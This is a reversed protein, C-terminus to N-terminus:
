QRLKEIAHEERRRVEERTMGLEQGVRDLTRPEARDLGCRLIVLRREDANLKALLPELDDLDGVRDDDLGFRLIVLRREDANRKVLLPELDLDGVRDGERLIENCLDVCEDCIHVGPGAILKKLQAQSKGCFSCALAAPSV